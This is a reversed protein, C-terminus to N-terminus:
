NEDALGEERQLLSSWCDIVNRPNAYFRTTKFIGETSLQHVINRYESEPVDTTYEEFVSKNLTKIQSDSQALKLVYPNIEKSIIHKTTCHYNFDIINGGTEDREYNDHGKFRDLIEQLKRSNRTKRVVSKNTNMIRSALFEVSHEIMSDYKKSIDPTKNLIHEKLQYEMYKGINIEHPMLPNRLSDTTNLRYDVMYDNKLKQQDDELSNVLEIASPTMLTPDIDKQILSRNYTNNDLIDASSILDYVTSFENLSEKTSISMKYESSGRILKLDNKYSFLFQLQLLCRRIDRQNSKVISQIEEQPIDLNLIKCYENIFSIVTKTVAKKAHFLSNTEECMDILNSPIFNLDKCILILPKRSKLLLTELVNWFSKDHERFLVDVDSFLVIGCSSKDKVYHSTCYESLTDFIDKKSRNQNSHISLVQGNLSQIITNILTNKGVGDGHLIMLPVFEEMSNDGEDDIMDDPIIFGDYEITGPIVNKNINKKSNILSHRTTPKRLKDFADIIWKNVKNKLKADLLVESPTKPQFLHSWLSVHNNHKISTRIIDTRIDNNAKSRLQEYDIPDFIYEHSTNNRQETPLYKILIQSSEFIEDTEEDPQVLQFAPLPTPIEKLKSIDNLRKFPRTRYEDDEDEDRYESSNNQTKNTLIDKLSTRKAGTPISQSVRKPNLIKNFNENELDIVEQLSLKEEEVDITLPGKKNKTQLKKEKIPKPPRMKLFNSVSDISVNDGIPSIKIKKPIITDIIDNSIKTPSDLLDITEPETTRIEGPKTTTTTSKKKPKKQPAKNNGNLLQNLSISRKM